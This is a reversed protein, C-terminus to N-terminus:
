VLKQPNEIMQQYIMSQLIVSDNPQLSQLEIGYRVHGPSPEDNIVARIVGKLSLFAEINHLQVRFALNLADGKKGLPKKADLSLGTASIDSIIASMQETADSENNQVAAIIRTKVRATKRIALGQINDPFSLHLYDFPIKNVKVINCAFAFANKGSFSRMIVQENELLQLRQGNAMLPTTVLLSLGRMFGIVKVVLREKSLQPPPELQLRDEVRLKMDDFTFGADDKNAEAPEPAPTNEGAPGDGKNKDGSGEWSLEHCAGGALLSKRHDEDRVMDGQALLLNHMSDYLAWPLPKGVVLEHSNVLILSM